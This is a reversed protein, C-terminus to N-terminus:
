LLLVYLLANKEKQLLRRDAIKLAEWWTLPPKYKKPVIDDANPV